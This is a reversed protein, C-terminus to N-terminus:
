RDAKEYPLDHITPLVADIPLGLRKVGEVDTTSVSIYVDDKVIEKLVFVDSSLLAQTGKNNM